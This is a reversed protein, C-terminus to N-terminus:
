GRRPVYGDDDTEIQAPKPRTLEALYDDLRTRTEPTVSLFRLGAGTPNGPSGQTVSRMVECDLTLPAGGDSLTVEVTVKAGVPPPTMSRVFLGGRSINDAYEREFAAETHFVVKLSTPYRREQRRDAGSDALGAARRRWAEVRARVEPGLPDFKLGFGSGGERALAAPIRYAVVGEVRAPGYDDPIALLAGARSQARPPDDSRVFLVGSELEKIVTAAGPGEPFLVTHRPHESSMRAPLM